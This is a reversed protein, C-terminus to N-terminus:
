GGGHAERILLERVSDKPICSQIGKFLFVDEEVYDIKSDVPSCILILAFEPNAEYLEKIFSFRLVTAELFSLLSYRMSLADVVVNSTGVDHKSFLLVDALIRGVHCEPKKGQVLVVGIGIGSADCELEFLKLSLLLVLSLDSQKWRLYIWQFEKKLYKKLHDLHEKKNKLYVLIDDFYVVEFRGILPWLAENVLRMFTSPANFLGFPMVLWEFLGGKIKFATKWVDGESMSSDKKPLLLTLVSCPSMSTRVYGKVVMYNVQKEVEKAEHPSCQYPAKDPLISGPALGIQHEIGNHKKLEDSEVLMLLHAGTGSKLEADVEVQTIFLTTNIKAKFDVRPIDRPNLYIHTINIGSVYMFYTNQDGMIISMSILYGIDISFAVTVRHAVKVENGQNLWTLKYPHPHKKTVLGLKEVMHSLTTNACSGSDVILSCVKGSIM